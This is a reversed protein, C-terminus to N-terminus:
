DLAAKVESIVDETATDLLGHGWEPRDILKGNQLLPMVRPTIEWLDDKPNLVTIRHPLARVVDPFHENYAFAARHGWEYNEGGRLSEAMSTAMMELTLGPGAHFKIADWIQRFRTGDEDLPVPQFHADFKAQEEPSLVLASIMVIGGVREPQTHAMAAAVKAGTHHGLIDVKDIGLADMAQWITRAYDDITVHPEAPPHDSEGMGPYDPAIVTRDSSAQTMFEVFFRGSKPSMHLCLLPRHTPETCESVRVHMQGYDMDVFTRRPAPMASEKELLRALM